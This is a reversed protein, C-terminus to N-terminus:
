AQEYLRKFKKITYEIENDFKLKKIKCGVENEVGLKFKQFVAFV